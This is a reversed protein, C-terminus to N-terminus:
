VCGTRLREIESALWHFSQKPTRKQTELDLHVLGFRPAFGEAWEFNDVFTWAFYGRVDAGKEIAQYVAGLYDIFFDIRGEDNVAGEANPADPFAIGNETIYIPLKYRGFEHILTDRFADASIEWGMQTTPVGDPPPMAAIGGVGKKDYRVYNPSYHNIGLYDLPQQILALDGDETLPDMYESLEPPYAGLIMPDPYIRNWILDFLTAAQRDEETDGAVRTPQQNCVVGLKADLVTERLLSIAAGHSRNVNHATKVLADLDQLGPAHRGEAYGLFTFVGPENFTAWHKVRDGYREGVLRTYDAFWDCSERVTWGGRAFLASPFDWHYLCIWPQISRELLEDILRDYFDLGKENPQGRGEPLVRSWAISFRYADLGLDAMLACDEKYRHYHDCAIDGTEGTKIKGPTHSFDDWISSGRGDENVAGEIQYSATSVGWIFDKSLAPLQRSASM